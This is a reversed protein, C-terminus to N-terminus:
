IKKALMLGGIVIFIVAGSYRIMDPKLYKGLLSGVAVSFVTVLMYAAVSAAWILVPKGSKASMAIGIIQTKDALEAFFIASFTAFFLKWEM